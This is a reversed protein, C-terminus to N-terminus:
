FFKKLSTQSFLDGLTKKEQIYSLSDGQNIYKQSNVFEDCSNKFEHVKTIYNLIERKKKDTEAENYNLLANEISKNGVSEIIEDIWLKNNKKLKNLTIINLDNKSFFKLKNEIPPEQKETGTETKEKKDVPRSPSVFLSLVDGVVFESHHLGSVNKSQMITREVDMLVICVNKEHFIKWLRDYNARYSKVPKYLIGLINLDGTEDYTDLYRLIELFKEEDCSPDLIPMIEKDASYKLCMKHTEIFEKSSLNLWPITIVDLSVFDLDTIQLALQMRIFADVSKTDKLWQIAGITPQLVVYNLFYHQMQLLKTNVSRLIKKYGENTNIFSDINRFSSTTLKFILGGIEPELPKITPIQQKANLESNSIARIPTIISKSSGIKLKTTRARYVYSDTEDINRPKVVLKM